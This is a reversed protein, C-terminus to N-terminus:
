LDCDDEEVELAGVCVSPLFDEQSFRACFRRTDEPVRGQAQIVLRFGSALTIVLTNKQVSLSDPLGTFLDLFTGCFSRHSQQSVSNM